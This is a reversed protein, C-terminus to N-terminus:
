ACQLGHAATSVSHLTTSSLAHMPGIERVRVPTNRRCLRKATTMVGSLRGNETSKRVGDKAEHSKREEAITELHDDLESSAYALAASVDWADM